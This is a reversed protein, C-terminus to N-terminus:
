RSVLERTRREHFGKVADAGKVPNGYLSTTFDAAFMEAALQHLQSTEKEWLLAWVFTYACINKDHAITVLIQRLGSWSLQKEEDLAQPFRGRGILVQIKEKLPLKECMQAATSNKCFQTELFVEKAIKNSPDQKLIRQSVQNAEAPEVVCDPLDYYFLQYEMLTINNPSLAIEALLHSYAAFYAGPLYFFFTNLLMRALSHYKADKSRNILFLAFVYTCIDEKERAYTSLFADLENESNNITELYLEEFFGKELLNQWLYRMKLGDM